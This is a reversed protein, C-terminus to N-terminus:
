LSCLEIEQGERLTVSSFDHIRLTSPLPVFSCAFVKRIIWIIYGACLSSNTQGLLFGQCLGIDRVSKRVWLNM